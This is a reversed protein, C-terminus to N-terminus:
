SISDQRCKRRWLVLLLRWKCSFHEEPLKRKGQVEKDKNKRKMLFSQERFSKNRENHNNFWRSLATTSWLVLQQLAPFQLTLVVCCPVLSDLYLIGNVTYKNYQQLCMRCKGDCCTGNPPATLFLVKYHRLHMFIKYKPDESVKFLNSSSFDLLSQFICSFWQSCLLTSVLTVVPNLLHAPLIESLGYVLKVLWPKSSVLAMSLAAERSKVPAM